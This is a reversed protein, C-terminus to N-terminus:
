RSATLAGTGKLMRSRFSQLTREMSERAISKIIPQVIVSLIPPISRSLTMSECEVIVGGHIQQYRWYSNLKWLFGSDQGEPKEREDQKQFNEIERIRTAISSSWAAANSHKSYKILHETNYVVTVIKSRQLKLFLRLQGPSKELLRSDKVDEQKVNEATPNEVRFLVDDLTVGPIFIFGRWHHVMGDPIEELNRSDAPVSEVLVKGTFLSKRAMEAKSSNWFDISLFGTSSFRESQIRKEVAGVYNSWAQLTESHLEAANGHSALSFMSLFLSLLTLNAFKLNTM